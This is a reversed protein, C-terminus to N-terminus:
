ILDLGKYKSAMMQCYNIFAEQEQDELPTYNRKKNSDKWYAM